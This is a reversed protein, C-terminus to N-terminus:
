QKKMATNVNIKATFKKNMLNNQNTGDESLWIYIDYTYTKPYTDPTLLTNPLLQLTSSNSIDAFNGSSIIKGDQLLEYKYNPIKLEEDMAINTLSIDLALLYDQLNKDVTITFSNKNAYVYRDEDYIPTTKSSTIYETQNFITTPTEKITSGSLNSEANSYAYWGYSVGMMIILIITFTITLITITKKFEMSYM